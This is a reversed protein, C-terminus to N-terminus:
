SWVRKRRRALSRRQTTVLVIQKADDVNNQRWRELGEVQHTHREQFFFM